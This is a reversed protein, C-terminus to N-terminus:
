VSFAYQWGAVIIWDIDVVQFDYLLLFDRWGVVIAWDLKMQSGDPNQDFAYEWGTVITWDIDHLLMFSRWDAATTWDLEMQQVDLNEYVPMQFEIALRQRALIGGIRDPCSFNMGVALSGRTGGQLNPDMTPSPYDSQTTRIAATDNHRYSEREKESTFTTVNGWNEFAGRLSISLWDNFRRASWLTAGITPGLRYNQSNRNLRIAGRTQVGYSWSGHTAAFTLGPRLEFSGSGLQMPYHPDRIIRNSSYIFRPNIPGTPISVGANLRLDTNSTNLFPILASLRLDGPGATTLWHDETQYYYGEPIHRHTVQMEMFDNRYNMMAMLTVRDHPAFMAGFMHMRTQMRIPVMTYDDLADEISIDTIDRLGDMALGLTRYSFMMKGANHIHDEMVGLPAYNDPRASVIQETSEKESAAHTGNAFVNVINGCFFLILLVIGGKKDTKM